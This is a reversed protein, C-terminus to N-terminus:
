IFQKTILVEEIGRILDFREGVTYIGKYYDTDIQELLEILEKM